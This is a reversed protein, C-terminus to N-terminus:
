MLWVQNEPRAIQNCLDWWVQTKPKGYQVLLPMSKLNVLWTMPCSPWCLLVCVIIKRFCVRASKEITVIQAINGDEPAIMKQIVTELVEEWLSYIPNQPALHWLQWRWIERRQEPWSCYEWFGDIWTYFM